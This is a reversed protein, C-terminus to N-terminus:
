NSGYDKDRDPVFLSASMEEAVGEVDINMELGGETEQQTRWVELVDVHEELVRSFDENLDLLTQCVQRHCDFLLELPPLTTWGSKDYALAVIYGLCVNISIDSMPSEINAFVTFEKSYLDIHGAFCNEPVDVSTISVEGETLPIKDEIWAALATLQNEDWSITMKYEEPPM